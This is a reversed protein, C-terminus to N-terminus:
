TTQNVLSFCFTFQWRVIIIKNTLISFSSFLILFSWFPCLVRFYVIELMTWLPCLVTKSEGTPTEDDQSLTEDDQSITLRILSQAIDM